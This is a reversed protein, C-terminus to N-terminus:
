EGRISKLALRAQGALRADAHGLLGSVAQEGSRGERGMTTLVRLANEQDRVNPVSLVDILAPVAEKGMVTLATMAEQTIVGGNERLVDILVPIASKARAPGLMTFARAVETRLSLQAKRDALVKTLVDVVPQK